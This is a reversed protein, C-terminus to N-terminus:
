EPIYGTEFDKIYGKFEETRAFGDLDMCVIKVNEYDTREPLNLLHCVQWLVDKLTEKDHWTTVMDIEDHNEENEMVMIVEDFTNHLLKGFEGCGMFLLVEKDIAKRAFEKFKSLDPEKIAM